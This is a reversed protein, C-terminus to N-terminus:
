STPIPARGRAGSVLAGGVDRHVLRHNLGVLADGDSFGDYLAREPPPIKDRSALAEDAARDMENTVEAEIGALVDPDINRTGLYAEFLGLPDRRGWTAFLGDAFTERAEREDHTAHGGM